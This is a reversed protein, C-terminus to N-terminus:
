RQLDTVKHLLKYAVDLEANTVVMAADAADRAAKQSQLDATSRAIAQEIRAEFAALEAILSGATPAFRKAFWAKITEINM